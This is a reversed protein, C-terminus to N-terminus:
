FGLNFAEMLLYLFGVIGGIFLGYVGIVILLILLLVLLGKVWIM